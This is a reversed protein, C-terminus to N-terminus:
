GSWPWRRRAARRPRPTPPQPVPPDGGAIMSARTEANAASRDTVGDLHGATFALDLVTEYKWAPHYGMHVYLSQIFGTAVTITGTFALPQRLEEYTAQRPTRGFLEVDPGVPRGGIKSAAGLELRDLELRDDRVAYTAIWGRWAGTHIMVPEIAHDTPDFLGPSHSLVSYRQGDLLLLDTAQATM